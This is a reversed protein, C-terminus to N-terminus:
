KADHPTEKDHAVEDTGESSTATNSEMSGVPSGDGQQRGLYQPAPAPDGPTGPASTIPSAPSARPSPATKRVGSVLGGASAIQRSAAQREVERALRQANRPLAIGAAEHRKFLYELFFADRASRGFAGSSVFVEALPAALPQRRPSRGYEMEDSDYGRSMLLQGFRSRWHGTLVSRGSTSIRRVSFDDFASFYKIVLTPDHATKLYSDWAKQVAHWIDDHPQGDEHLQSELLAYGSLEAVELLIDASYALKTEPRADRLEICARDYARLGLMLYTPFISVALSRQDDVIASLFENALTTCALGFSDPLDGTPLGLDLAPAVNVISALLEADFKAIRAITAKADLTPWPSDDFPMSYQQLRSLAGSISEGHFRLKRAAERGRLIVLMAVDAAEATTAGSSSHTRYVMEANSQLTEMSECLARSLSRALYHRVFWRPTVAAGEAARELWVADRLFDATVRVPKPLAVGIADTPDGSLTRTALDDVTTLSLSEAARGVALIMTCPAIMAAEFIALRALQAKAPPKGVNGAQADTSEALADAHRLCSTLAGQLLLAAELHYTAALREIAVLIDSMLGSAQDLAGRRVLLALTKDIMSVLREELWQENPIEKPAAAASALLLM